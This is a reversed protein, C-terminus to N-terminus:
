KLTSLPAPEVMHRLHMTLRRVQVEQVVQGVGVERVMDMIQEVVIEKDVLVLQALALVVEGVEGVVLDEATGLAPAIIEVMDVVQRLTDLHLAIQDM